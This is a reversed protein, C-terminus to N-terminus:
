SDSKLCTFKEVSLDYIYIYIYIYALSACIFKMQFCNCILHCRLIKLNYRVSKNYNAGRRSDDQSTRIREALWCFRQSKPVWSVFGYENTGFRFWIFGNCLRVNQEKLIESRYETSTGDRINFTNHVSTCDFLRYCFFLSFLYKLFLLYICLYSLLFFFHCPFWLNYAWM